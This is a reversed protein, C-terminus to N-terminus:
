YDAIITSGAFVKQGEKIKINVREEVPIILDVQSGIKIVGIRDGKKVEKGLQVFSVIKNVYIDAIQVVTIPLDGNIQIINRENEIIHSSFKEYPKIKLLVRWWMLTMPLNKKNSIYEQHVVTGSIPARNVHVSTPHMFIGVLYKSGSISFKRQIPLLEELHIFSRKKISIPVEDNEIRKIYVVTGDAPSVINRGDPIIRNPDRFFYFYRWIFWIIFFIFIISLFIM